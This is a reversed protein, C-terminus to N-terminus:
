TGLRDYGRSGGAFHVLGIVGADVMQHVLLERWVLRDAATEGGERWARLSDNGM